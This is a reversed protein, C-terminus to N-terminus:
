KEILKLKCKKIEYAKNKKFKRKQWIFILEYGINNRGMEGRGMSQIIKLYYDWMYWKM